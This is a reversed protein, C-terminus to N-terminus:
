KRVVNTAYTLWSGLPPDLHECANFAPQFWACLRLRQDIEKEPYEGAQDEYDAAEAMKALM